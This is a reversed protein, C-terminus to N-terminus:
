ECSPVEDSVQDLPVVARNEWDIAGVVWWQGKSPGISILPKDLTEFILDGGLYVRVSARAEGFGYDDHYKVGILYRTDPEPNDLRVVEPGAGNSDDIGFSPDDARSTPDGWIPRRARYHCDWRESDWCGNPHLLHLDLDSGPTTDHPGGETDDGPTNWTLVVEIDYIPRASVHVEYQRLTGSADAVELVFTYDGILDVFITTRTETPSAFDTSSGSPASAVSWGVVEAGDSLDAFCELTDFPLVSLSLSPPAGSGEVTCGFEASFPVDPGVDPPAVDPVTDPEPDVDPASVDADTPLGSDAPSVDPAGVDPTSTDLEATDAGADTPLPGSDYAGTGYRPTSENCAGLALLAVLLIPSRPM